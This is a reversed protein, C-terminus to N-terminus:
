IKCFCYCLVSVEDISNKRIAKKTEPTFITNSIELLSVFKELASEKHCTICSSHRLSRTLPDTHSLADAHQAGLPSGSQWVVCVCTDSLYNSAHRYM